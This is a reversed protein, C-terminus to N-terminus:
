SRKIKLIEFYTDDDCNELLYMKGSKLQTWVTKPKGGESKNAGSTHSEKGTSFNISTTSSEGTARHFESHDFGILEFAKNQYRFTYAANNVFWSGCSLWYNFRIKLLGKEIKVSGNEMLPDDMCVSDEDNESPIFGRDNKAILIYNNKEKKFFVLVQRPNLNLEPSGFGENKRFNQQDTKELVVVVDERNDNNLDGKETLIVKWGAPIYKKIAKNQASSIFSLLLLLITFGYNKM